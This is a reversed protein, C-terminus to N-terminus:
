AARRATRFTQNIAFLYIATILISLITLSIGIAAAFPFNGQVTAQEYAMMGMMKVRGGGMLSPIAFAAANLTFAILTGAVVGPLSLPFTVAWFTKYKNAGVSAAAEKLAPDIAAIVGILPLVVYPIAIQVLGILVGLETYMIRVKPMGMFTLASDILGGSMLLVNLGFIRIVINVSLSVVVMSTLFGRRDAPLEAIYYALVYGIILALVTSLVSLKVTTWLATELYFPDTWFRAYHELTGTFVPASGVEHSSMSTAVLWCMPVFFFLIVFAFPLFLPAQTSWAVVREWLGRREDSQPLSPTLSM